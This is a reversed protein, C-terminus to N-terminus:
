DQTERAVATSAPRGDPTQPQLQPRRGPHPQFKRPVIELSMLSDSQRDANLYPEYRPLSSTPLGGTLKELRTRCRLVGEKLASAETVRGSRDASRCAQHRAKAM